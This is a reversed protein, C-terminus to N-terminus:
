YRSRRGGAGLASRAHDIALVTWVWKVMDWGQRKYSEPTAFWGVWWLGGVLGGAVVRRLVEHQLMGVGLCVCVEALAATWYMGHHWVFGVDHVVCVLNGVIGAVRWQFFIAGLYLVPSLFGDLLSPGSAPLVWQFPTFPTIVTLLGAMLFVSSIKRAAMEKASPLAGWATSQSSTAKQVM